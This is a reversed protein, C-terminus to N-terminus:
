LYKTFSNCYQFMICYSSDMNRSENMDPEWLWSDRTWKSILATKITSSIIYWSGEWHGLPVFVWRIGSLLEAKRSIKFRTKYLMVDVLGFGLCSGCRSILLSDVTSIPTRTRPGGGKRQQSLPLQHMFRFLLYNASLITQFSSSYAHKKLRVTTLPIGCSYFLLCIV